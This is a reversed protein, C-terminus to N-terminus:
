ALAEWTGAGVPEAFDRRAVLVGGPGVALPLQPLPRIAPGGVPRAGDTVDFVSQHCPCLLRRSEQQYLGVPCGAHTCLQSFAVYGAASWEEGAPGVPVDNPPLRILVVQADVADLAGEPFVTLTGGVPLDDITVPEGEPTVVRVGATWPTRRLAAGPAPALSAVPVLAALGTVGLAAGLLRVLLTRRAFAPEGLVAAAEARTEPPSAFPPRPEVDPEPPVLRLAWVALAVALAALALVAGAGLVQTGAGAVYAVVFGVGGVIALVLAGAVIREGRPDALPPDDRHGRPALRGLADLLALASLARLAAGLLLPGRRV